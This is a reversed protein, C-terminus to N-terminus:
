DNDGRVTPDEEDPAFGMMELSARIQSLSFVSQDYRLHVLKTKSDAKTVSVGPLAHLTKTVTKECGGCHLAPIRLTAQEEM